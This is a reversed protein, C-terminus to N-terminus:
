ISCVNHRMVTVHSMHCTVDVRFLVIVLDVSIHTATKHASQRHNLSPARAVEVDTAKAKSRTIACVDAEEEVEMIVANNEAIPVCQFVYTAPNPDSAAYATSSIHPPPDCRFNSTTPLVDSTSAQVPLTNGYREDITTRLLGTSHHCRIRSGDPYALFWDRRVIWGARIYDEIVHCQSVLHQGGCM